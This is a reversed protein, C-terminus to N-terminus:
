PWPVAHCPNPMNHTFSCRGGCSSRNALSAHSFQTLHYLYLSCSFTFKVGTEAYLAVCANINLLLYVIILLHFLKIHKDGHM